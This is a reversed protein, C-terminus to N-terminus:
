DLKRDLHRFFASVAKRKKKESMPNWGEGRVDLLSSTFTSAKVGGSCVARVEAGGSTPEIKFAWKRREAGLFSSKAQWDTRVRGKERDEEIIVYGAEEVTEVVAEFVRDYGYPYVKSDGAWLFAPICLVFATVVATKM